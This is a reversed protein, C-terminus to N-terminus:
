SKLARNRVIFVLAAFLIWYISPSPVEIFIDSSAKLVKISKERSDAVGDTRNQTNFLPPTKLDGVLWNNGFIWIGLKDLGLLPQTTFNLDLFLANSDRKGAPDHSFLATLSDIFISSGNFWFEANTIGSYHYYRWSFPDDTISDPATLTDLKFILEFTSGDNPTILLDGDGGFRVVSSNHDEIIGSFM